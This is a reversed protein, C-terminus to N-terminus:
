LYPLRSGMCMEGYDVKHWTQAEGYGQTPSPPIPWDARAEFLNTDIPETNPWPTDERVKFVPVNPVDDVPSPISPNLDLLPKEIPTTESKKALSHMTIPITEVVSIMPMTQSATTAVTPTPAAPMGTIGATAIPVTLTENSTPAAKVPQAILRM